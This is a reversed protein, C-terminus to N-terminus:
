CSVNRYPDDQPPGRPTARRPEPLSARVSRLDVHHHLTGVAGPDGEPPCKARHTLGRLRPPRRPIPVLASSAAQLCSGHLPLPEGWRMGTYAAMFILARYRPEIADAFAAVRAPELFRMEEHNAQKPLHIGIAFAGTRLSSGLASPGGARIEDRVFAQSLSAEASPVLRSGGLSSAWEQAPLPPADTVAKRTRLESAVDPDPVVVNFGEAFREAYKGKGADGFDYEERMGSDRSDAKKMQDGKM